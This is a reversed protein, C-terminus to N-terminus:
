KKRHKMLQRMWKTEANQFKLLQRPTLIQKFRDYYKKEIAGEKYKFEFSAEAAKELELDTADKKSSVSKEMKRTDRRLQNREAEFANYVDTFQEKKESSINLEKIMFEVKAKKMEQMWQSRQASTKEQACINSSCVISIVLLAISFFKSM